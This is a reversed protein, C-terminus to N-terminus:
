ETDVADADAALVIQLDSVNTGTPGTIIHGGVRAFFSYSNNNRLYEAADIGRRRAAEVTVTSVIAGAADTPGDVGDTGASLVVIPREAGDLTLAANLALEQNRGGKGTGSVDVVTEGGSVLGV